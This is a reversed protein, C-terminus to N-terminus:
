FMPKYTGRGSLLMVGKANTIRANNRNYGLHGHDNHGGIAKVGQLGTKKGQRNGQYNENFGFTKAVDYVAQNKEVSFQSDSRASNSRFSKGDKNIYRFDVDLGSRGNHGHGSHHIMGPHWLDRGNSSSTDGFSITIGYEDKLVAAVGFLGAAVEPKVFHDGAGHDGGGKDVSGYRGFFDMEAPFEVLGADNEELTALQRYERSGKETEIYYNHCKCDNKVVVYSGDRNIFYDDVIMGTPDTFRLPNNFTYIYRNWSQPNERMASALLQDSTTFRGHSYSYMRAQAF